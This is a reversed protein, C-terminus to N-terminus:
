VRLLKCFKEPLSHDGCRLWNTMSAARLLMPDVLQWQGRDNRQLLVCVGEQPSFAQETFPDYIYQDSVRRRKGSEQSQEAVELVGVSARWFAAPHLVALASYRSGGIPRLTVHGQQILEDWPYDGLLKADEM